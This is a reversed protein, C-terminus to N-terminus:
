RQLDQWSGRQRHRSEAEAGSRRVSAARDRRSEGRKGCRGSPTCITVIDVENDQLLADASTYSKCGYQQAFASAQAPVDGYVGALSANAIAGIAQAHTHAVAGTGIIAFRYVPNQLSM